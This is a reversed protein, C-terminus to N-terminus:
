IAPTDTLVLRLETRHNITLKTYVKHLHYEVTRPSIALMTAIEPNSRGDRALSAIRAEQPTLESRTEEVRRRAREGTALLERTARAAFAEAGMAVFSEHAARLQVRADVRRGQRRLWEGYVLRARALHVTIRSRDLHKIAEVYWNEAHDDDEVLARSRAAAGLAWDTGSLWTQDTLKDLAARATALDGSRVAGEVLEVLSWGQLELADREIVQRTAAVADRYAGLGNCRVAKAYRSLAATVGSGRDCTDPDEAGRWAALVVAAQTFEPTGAADSLATSEDVLSGAVSFQGTHIEVLARHTLVYPLFARAGVKRTREVATRSLEDWADDEWLDAAVLCGLLQARTDDEHDNDITKLALKLSEIAAPYGSTSRQAVGELLRNTGAPQHTALRASVAHVIDLDGTFIAAGLTELYAGPALRPEHEELNKASRLLGAIARRGRTADFNIRARTRDLRARRRADLPGLEAIGLLRVALEPDGAEHYAEAAMIARETRLDPTATWRGAHELFSAAAALGGRERAARVAHLLEDGITDDPVLSAHTRHWIHRDPDTARDTAAALADHVRRREAPTAQGYSASRLRPERFTVLSGFTLLGETELQEAAGAEIGLRAAARWLLAPDGVTEAAALLLLLRSRPALRAVTDDDRRNSLALAYGGALEVPSAGRASDILTRPNGRAEAVIRDAVADDIPAPLASELLKRADAQNLGAVGIDPLGAFNDGRTAILVTVPLEGLRRAVFTLVDASATDLWHADDVVCLLPRAEAALTLLATMAVGVLFRDPPAGGRRGLATDLAERHHPDLGTLRSDLASCLLHLASYRLESEAAAGRVSLVRHGLAAAVARDLLATKGIGAPGRVVLAAGQGAAGASLVRALRARERERGVVPLTAARATRGTLTM